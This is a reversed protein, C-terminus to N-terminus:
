ARRESPAGPPGNTKVAAEQFVARMVEFPVPKLWFHDFGAANAKQRADVDGCGTMAVLVCEEGGESQRIRQAAEYGDLYPMSIDLVVVDPRYEKAVEVAALGHKVAIAEYGLLACLRQM